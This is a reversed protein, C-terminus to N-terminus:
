FYNEGLEDSWQAVRLESRPGTWRFVPKMDVIPTGDILDLGRVLVSRERVDLIEVTSLLLSNPRDKNRQAFIGVRPWQARGRPRRAWIVTDPVTAAHAVAIVELHSFDTLGRLAESPVADELVIECSEQDWHDDIAIGRTSRVVALTSVEFQM